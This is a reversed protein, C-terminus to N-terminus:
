AVPDRSYPEHSGMTVRPGLPLFLGTRNHIGSIVPAIAEMPLWDHHYLPDGGRGPAFGYATAEGTTEERADAACGAGM